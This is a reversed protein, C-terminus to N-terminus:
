KKESDKKDDASCRYSIIKENNMASLITVNIEIGKLFIQKLKKEWIMM